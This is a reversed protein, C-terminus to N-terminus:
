GHFSIGPRHRERASAQQGSRQKRAQGPGRRGRQLDAIERQPWGARDGGGQDLRRRGILAQLSGPQTEAVVGGGAAEGVLGEGKLFAARLLWLRREAGHAPQERGADAEHDGVQRRIHQQLRGGLGPRQQQVDGGRVIRQAIGVAPPVYEM